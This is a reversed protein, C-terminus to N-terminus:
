KNKRPKRKQTRSGSIDSVVGKRVKGNSLKAANKLRSKSM